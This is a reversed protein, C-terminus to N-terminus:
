RPSAGDRRPLLAFVTYVALSAGLSLLYAFEFGSIVAGVYSTVGTGLSAYAAAAGGWRSFLGFVVVVLIGASGLASAEHVLSAVSGGALAIGTAVLGFGIVGARALRLKAREGLAPLAPQVLNHSLLSSSVLLTSDVTSLIASVLAGVFL